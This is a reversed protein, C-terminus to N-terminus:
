QEQRNKMMTLFHNMLKYKKNKMGVMRSGPPPLDYCLKSEPFHDICKYEFLRSGYLRMARQVFMRAELGCTEEILDGGCSSFRNAVCCGLRSRDRWDANMVAEVGAMADRVCENSTGMSISNFCPMYKLLEERLQTGPVCIGEKKKRVIKMIYEYGLQHIEKTCDMTYNGICDFAEDVADCREDLVDEYDVNETTL